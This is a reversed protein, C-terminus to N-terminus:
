IAPPLTLTAPTSYKEATTLPRSDWVAVITQDPYSSILDFYNM